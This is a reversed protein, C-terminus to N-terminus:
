LRILATNEPTGDTGNVAVAWAPSAVFSAKVCAGTVVLAPLGIGATRTAMWSALPFVTVEAVPWTVRAMSAFGPPPVSEPVVVTLATLPTATKEVREISLAPLPYVRVATDM